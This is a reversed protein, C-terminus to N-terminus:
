RGLALELKSNLNRTCTEFLSFILNPSCYVILILVVREILLVRICDVVTVPGELRILFESSFFWDRVVSRFVKSWRFQVITTVRLM